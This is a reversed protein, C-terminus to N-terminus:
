PKKEAEDLLHSPKAAQWGDSRDALFVALRDVEVRVAADGAFTFDVRSGGDGLDGCTIALLELVQDKDKLDFGRFAVSRVHELHLGSLIREHREGGLLGRKPREWRFRSLLMAFRRREKVWALEGVQTLADQVCASLVALDDCDGASIKLGHFM